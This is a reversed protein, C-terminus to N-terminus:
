NKNESFKNFKKKNQEYVEKLGEFGETESYSNILEEADELKLKEQSVLHIVALSMGMACGNYYIQEMDM